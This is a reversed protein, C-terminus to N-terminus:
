AAEAIHDARRTLARLSEELERRLAEQLSRDAQAPVTLPSGFCVIARSFPKPILFEDWSRLRWARSAGFTLPVIPCGTIKALTIVGPQVVGKPGRPGDPVIAVEAGAMLLRALRKLGVAGGRTSSGRVTEFGFTRVFRAVLEGDRHRSALVHVRHLPGYLCPFMLLRGHWLAYIVPASREWIQQVYHQDVVDVALTRALARVGWHGVRPVAGLLLRDWMRM